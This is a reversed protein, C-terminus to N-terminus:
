NIINLSKLAKFTVEKRSKPFLKMNFSKKPTVNTAFFYVNNQREIYGVFWGNNTDNSISWGTKGSLSYLENKKIFFIKKMLRTTETSIPLKNKYFRKLFDIQQFQNISSTGELWFMDINTSDVDMKKYDLKNLYGNMREAGVKRAIEQYCPVCSFQFAERFTMDQEWVKLRRKKGDWKFVVSDNEVIGTELAIISNPIKFTSAPLYGKQARKFNNSYYKNEQTDYVLIAGNLEASDLIKQFQSEVINIPHIEKKHNNKEHQNSQKCCVFILLFLYLLKKM